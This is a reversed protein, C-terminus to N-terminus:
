PHQTCAWKNNGASKVIAIIDVPATTMRNSVAKQRVADVTTSRLMHFSRALTRMMTYEAFSRVASGVGVVGM